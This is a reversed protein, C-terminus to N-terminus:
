VEVVSFVGAGETAVPMYTECWIDVAGANVVAGSIVISVVSLRAVVENPLIDVSGAVDKSGTGKVSQPM